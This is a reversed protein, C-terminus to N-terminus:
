CDDSAESYDHGLPQGVKQTMSTQKMELRQEAAPAEEEAECMLVGFM